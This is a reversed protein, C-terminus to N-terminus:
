PYDREVCWWRGGTLKSINCPELLPGSSALIDYTFVDSIKAPQSWWISALRWSAGENTGFSCIEFLFPFFLPCLLTPCMLSPQRPGSCKGGYSGGNGDGKITTQRKRRGAMAWSLLGAWTVLSSWEKIVEPMKLERSIEGEGTDTWDGWLSTTQRGKYFRSHSAPCTTKISRFFPPPNHTTYPSTIPTHVRLWDVGDARRRSCGLTHDGRRRILFVSHHPHDWHRFIWKRWM